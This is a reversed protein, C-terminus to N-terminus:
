SQGVSGHICELLSALSDTSPRCCTAPQQCLLRQREGSQMRQLLQLLISIRGILMKVGSETATLHVTVAAPLASNLPNSVPRAASLAAWCHQDLCAATTAM